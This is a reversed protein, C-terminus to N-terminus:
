RRRRTVLLGGLALLSLAGPAPVCYTDVVIQDIIMNPGVFGWPILAITEHDPNFPITVDWAAYHWSGNPTDGLWLLQWREFEYGGPPDWLEVMMHDSGFVYSELFTIQVRILKYDNPQPANPIELQVISGQTTELVGNYGEFFSHWVENGLDTHLYPDGYPNNAYEPYWNPGQQSDFTWHQYTTGPLGRWEPPNLDEAFSSTAFLVCLILVTAAYKM